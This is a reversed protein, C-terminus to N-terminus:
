KKLKKEWHGTWPHLRHGPPYKNSGNPGRWGALGKCYNKHWEQKTRHHLRCFKNKNHLEAKLLIHIEELREIERKLADIEDYLWHVKRTAEVRTLM